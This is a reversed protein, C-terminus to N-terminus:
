IEFLIQPTTHIREPPGDARVIYNDCIFAFLTPTAISPHCALFMNAELTMTEDARILPREVMDYGQSHSFVRTEPAKGRALMFRDHAAALDACVAGPRLRDVAASQAGLVISFADKMEDSAQGLVVQRALEGYYGAANSMELLITFTDGKELVRNQARWLRLHASKGLPASGSAMTGDIAGRLRFEHEALALLDVERLGPGVADLVKAFVEDQVRCAERLSDLEAAGKIAKLRDLADTEDSFSADPLSRQLCDVFAYPLGGPRLLGIRTLGRRKIEAVAIEAEYAFTCAISKFTATTYIAGVGPSDSSPERQGALSGHEITTMPGERFFLVVKMYAASGFDCFWRPYGSLSDDFGGAIVVDLEQDAMHRRVATWRRELESREIRAFVPDNAARARRSADATEVSQSTM